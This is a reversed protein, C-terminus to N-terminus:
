YYATWRIGKLMVYKDAIHAVCLKFGKTTINRICMYYDWSGDTNVFLTNGLLRFQYEKDGKSIMVTTIQKLSMLQEM